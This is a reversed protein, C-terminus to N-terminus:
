AEARELPGTERDEATPQRPAAPVDQQVCIAGVDSDGAVLGRVVGGDALLVRIVRVAEASIVEGPLVLPVGPPYPTIARAAVRGAAEALPFTRRAAQM